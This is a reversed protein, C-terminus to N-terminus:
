IHTQIHTHKYFIIFTTIVIHLYIYVNTKSIKFLPQNRSAVGFNLKVPM